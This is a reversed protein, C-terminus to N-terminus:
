SMSLLISLMLLLGNLFGGLTSSRSFGLCVCLEDCIGNSRSSVDNTPAHTHIHTNTTHTLTRMFTHTHTYTFTHKYHAYYASAHSHTHTLAAVKMYM